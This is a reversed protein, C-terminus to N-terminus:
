WTKGITIEVNMRPAVLDSANPSDDGIMVSVGQFTKSLGAETENVTYLPYTCVMFYRNLQFVLEVGTHRDRLKFRDTWTMKPKSMVADDWVSFNLEVAYPPLKDDGAHKFIAHSLSLASRGGHVRINKVVELEFSRAASGFIKDRRSLTLEISGDYESASLAYPEKLFRDQSPCGKYIDKWPREDRFIHTLFSDRRHDDYVLFKELGKDKVGLVDHVDALDGRMVAKRAENIRGRSNKELKDHYGERVRSITNMLNLCLPRYDLETLAGGSVPDVFIRLLDNVLLKEAKGGGLDREAFAVYPKDGREKLGEVINEACILHEYVGSRLHPLYVGGFTGHWYACNTQAKFLEKKAEILKESGADPGNDELSRLSGSVNLMRKRMRDSEPYKKFFNRFDGGSWEMMEAYSSVPVEGADAPPVEELVESYTATRLWGSSDELMGLFDKLWGKKHVWSYTYPWAGFKEGDDAFFFCTRKGDRKRAIDRMLDRTVVPAKFPMCYRLKTLSPFLTVRRDGFGTACPGYIDEEGLGARFMHHDDVITYDVGARALTDAMGPEWVKEAIWVGRPKTGFVRLVIEENLKIQERADREPIMALVPEFCGGGIIEIQGKRVLAAVKELHDPHERELWELLNGSYHFSAKVGPFEELRAILPEYASDYARELEWGFNDVPQHCHFAMAFLAKKM